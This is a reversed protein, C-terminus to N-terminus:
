KMTIRETVYSAGCPESVCYRDKFKKDSLDVLDSISVDLAMSIKVIKEPSLKTKGSEYNSITAASVGIIEALEKKSLKRRKRIIMIREGLPLYM